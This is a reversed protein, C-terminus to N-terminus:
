MMEHVNRSRDTFFCVKASIVAAVLSPTAISNDLMDKPHERKAFKGNKGKYVAIHHERVEFSAPIM